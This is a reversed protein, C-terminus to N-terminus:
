GSQVLFGSLSNNISHKRHNPVFRTRSICEVIVKVPGTRDALISETGDNANTVTCQLAPLLLHARVRINLGMGMPVTVPRRM